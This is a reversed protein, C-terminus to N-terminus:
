KGLLLQLFFLLIVTNLFILYYFYLMYVNLLQHLYTSILAIVSIHVKCFYILKDM